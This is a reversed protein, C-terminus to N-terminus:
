GLSWDGARWDPDSGSALPLVASRRDMCFAANAVQRACSRARVSRGKPGFSTYAEAASRSFDPARRTPRGSALLNGSQAQSEIVLTANPPIYRLILTAQNNRDRGFDIPPNARPNKAPDVRPLARAPLPTFSPPAACDQGRPLLQVMAPVQADRLSRKLTTADQFSAIPVTVTRNARPARYPLNAISWDGVRKIVHGDPAYWVAFVLRASTGRIQFAAINDKVAATVLGRYRFPRLQVHTYIGVKAVGDPVVEFFRSIAAGDKARLTQAPGWAQGDTIASATAYDSWGIGQVWVAVTEGLARALTPNTPRTLPVLFVKAGWPATRALRILPRDPKIESGPASPPQPPRSSRFSRDAPTQVRRLVGLTALLLPQRAPVPNGPAPMRHARLVILAGVALAVTLVVALTAAIGSV